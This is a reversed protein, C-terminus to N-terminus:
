AVRKIFKGCSQGDILEQYFEDSIPMADEPWGNISTEYISKLSSIYFGNTQASYFYNQM